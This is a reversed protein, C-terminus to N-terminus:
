RRPSATTSPETRRGTSASCTACCTPSRASRRARGCRRGCRRCSTRRGGRRRRWTRRAGRRGGRQDRSARLERLRAVQAAVEEEGIRQLEPQRDEDVQFRNVGVVVREGREIAQQIRFAAEHIEDQYFGAEIAAVAGGMATSRRSTARDRAARARRHAGRRLVLGGLPDVVEAVGTEYGIVQQTRLAIKARTSRRSRSRRTSRTRTCRSRAASCPRWRRSRRHARHQEGAAARHADRRGDAHPVAADAVARRERRVARAHDAGVPATGRPVERDGRLLAHPVRLLVVAAARLRRGRLGADIAAQM